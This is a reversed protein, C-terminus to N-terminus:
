RAGTRRINARTNVLDACNARAGKIIRFPLRGDDLAIACLNCIEDTERGTYKPDNVVDRRLKRIQEDSITNADLFETCEHPDNNGM